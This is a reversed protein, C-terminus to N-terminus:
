WELASVTRLVQSYYEVKTKRTENIDPRFIYGPLRLLLCNLYVDSADELSGNINYIVDAIKAKNATFLDPISIECLWFEDPLAYFMWDIDAVEYRNAKKDTLENLHRRYDDKKIISSRIVILKVLINDYLQKLWYNREYGNKTLKELYRLLMIKSAAEAHYGPIEINSLFLGCSYYPRLFPDDIPPSDYKKPKHFGPEEASRRETKLSDLPLCFIQEMVNFGLKVFISKVEKIHIGNVGMIGLSIAIDNIDKTSVCHKTGPYNNLMMKLTSQACISTKGNQQCFFTGSICYKHKEIPDIMIELPFNRCNHIYNNILPIPGIDKFQPMYDNIYFRPRRMHCRLMYSFSKGLGAVSYNIIVSSSLYSRNDLRILDSIKSVNKDVFTLRIANAIIEKGFFHKLEIIENIIEDDKSMEAENFAEMVVTEAKMKRMLSCLRHIPRKNGWHLWCKDILEFFSLQDCSMFLPETFM